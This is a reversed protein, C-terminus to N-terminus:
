PLRQDARPLHDHWGGHDDGGPRVTARAAADGADTATVNVVTTGGGDAHRELNGAALNVPDPTLTLWGPLTAASEFVPAGTPTGVIGYKVTVLEGVSVTVATTDVTAGDIAASAPTAFSLGLGALIVSLAATLAVLAHSRRSGRLAPVHAM